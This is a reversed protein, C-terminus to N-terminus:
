LIGLLWYSLEELENNELLYILVLLKWLDDNYIFM